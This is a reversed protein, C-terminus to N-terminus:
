ASNQDDFLTPTERFPPHASPPYTCMEELYPWPLPVGIEESVSFFAVDIASMQRALRRTTMRTKLILTESVGVISRMM